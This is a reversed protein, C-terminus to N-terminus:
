LSLQQLWLQAQQPWVSSDGKSTLGYGHGGTEYLLFQHPLQEEKLKNAYVLSGKIYKYDDKNHVILTPPVQTAEKFEPAVGEGKNLYAPYVLIAFDPRSSLSDIEDIAAYSQHAFSHSARAVLHGGASFGILGVKTSEIGWDEAHHRVKRIARQIDQFAGAKNNPVRYKLVAAHYGLSNLWKAVDTGCKNYALIKYAGGPCVIITPAQADEIKFLELTPESVNTIRLVGDEKIPLQKEQNQTKNGPMEVKGWVKIIESEVDSGELQTKQVEQAGLMLTALLLIIITKM